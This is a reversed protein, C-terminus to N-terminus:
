KISYKMDLKVFFLYHKVDALVYPYFKPEKLRILNGRIDENLHEVARKVLRKEWDGRKLFFFTKRTPLKSNTPVTKINDLQTAGVAIQMCYPINHDKM